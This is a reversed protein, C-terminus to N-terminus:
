DTISQQQQMIDNFKQIAEDQWADFRTEYSEEIVGNKLFFNHRESNLRALFFEYCHEDEKYVRVQTGDSLHFQIPFTAIM